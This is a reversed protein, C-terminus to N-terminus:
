GHPPPANEDHGSLRGDRLNSPFDPHDSFRAAQQRLVACEGGDPWSCADDATHALPVPHKESPTHHAIVSRLAAGEALMGDAELDAARDLLFESLNVGLVM